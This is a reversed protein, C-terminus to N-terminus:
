GKVCVCECHCMIHMMFNEGRGEFSGLSFQLVLYTLLSSVENNQQIAM